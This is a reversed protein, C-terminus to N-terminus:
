LSINYYDEIDVWDDALLDEASLRIDNNLTNIANMNPTDATAFMVLRILTTTRRLQVFTHESWSERRIYSHNKFKEFIEVFTM